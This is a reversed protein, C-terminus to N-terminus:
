PLGAQASCRPSFRPCALTSGVRTRARVADSPSCAAAQRVFGLDCNGGSRTSSCRLTAPLPSSVADLGLEAASSAGEPALGRSSMWLSLLPVPRPLLRLDVAGDERCSSVLWQKSFGCISVRMKGHAGTKNRALARRRSEYASPHSPSLGLFTLSVNGIACTSLERPKDPM